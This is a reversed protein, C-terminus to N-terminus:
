LSRGAGRRAPSRQSARRRRRVHPSRPTSTERRTGGVYMRNLRGPSVGLHYGLMLAANGAVQRYPGRDIFRRASTTVSQALRVLRGVRALRRAFGVDEFLPEPQFGGALDYATRSCFLCQDGLFTTTLRLRSLWALSDLVVHREDYRLRFAGGAVGPRALAARIAAGAGAPLRTDAHLFALAQGRAAAAGLALQHGRSAQPADIWVAGEGRAERRTEDSEGFASVILECPDAVARVARVTAVLRSGERFSPIIVSLPSGTDM